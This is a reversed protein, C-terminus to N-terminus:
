VVVAKVSEGSEADQYSLWYGFNQPNEQDLPFWTPHGSLQRPPLEQYVGPVGYCIYKLHEDESILGLVYFNGEADVKVKVWKSNPILNQLYEETPNEEFLQDLQEKIEYYFNQNNEAIEDDEECVDINSSLSETLKQEFYFQKYKCYECNGICKDIEEEIENQLQDDYDIGHEDLIQEVQRMGSSQSLASIVDDFVSEGSGNVNGYLIATTEGKSINVVACSFNDPLKKLGSGFSYVMNETRSLGAKEVQGDAYIGLSIIGLPENTFNYLRLKGRTEYGDNEITLIAKKDSGDTSKLVLSKKM